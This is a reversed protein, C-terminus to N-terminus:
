LQEPSLGTREFGALHWWEARQREVNRGCNGSAKLSRWVPSAIIKCDFNFVLENALYEM